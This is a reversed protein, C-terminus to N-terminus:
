AQAGAYIKARAAKYLETGEKWGADEVEALSTYKDVPRLDKGGGPPADGILMITSFSSGDMVPKEISIDCNVIRDLIESM